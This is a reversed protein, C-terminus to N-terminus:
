KYKISVRNIPGAVKNAEDITYIRIVNYRGKNMDSLSDYWKGNVYFKDGDSTYIALSAKEKIPHYQGDKRDYFEAEEFYQQCKQQM